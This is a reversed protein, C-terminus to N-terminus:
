RSALYAEIKEPTGLDFISFPASEAVMVREKDCISLYFDIISFKDPWNAMLSFIAPSVVQIGSFALKKCDSMEIEAFPTKVEGTSVNTWGKLSDAQDFLLYRQTTRDRVLLASMAKERMLLASNRDFFNRYDVDSYIDVNHVLFPETGDLLPAAHKIAGGTDLLMGTEDSFHIECGFNDHNQVYSIIQSAFHHLNIVFYDFGAEKLTLITHELMTSGGVQVLAKPKDGTLAGLRTGLGAALILAKRM